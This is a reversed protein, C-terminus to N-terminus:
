KRKVFIKALDWTSKEDIDISEQIPTQFIMPKNGVRANNKFFSKKSFFYICSNEEYIEKLFQTQILKKPNHNLPKINNNYFRSKYTNVSFLSDIKNKNKYKLFEKYSKNITKNSILPNTAHTMLFNINKINKYYDSVYNIDSEIIKNMSIAHGILSKSRKRIIVKKSIKNKSKIIFNSDTNIIIKSIHKNIILKDLMWRYLPKGCFLKFNKNFIRQSKSKLPYIAILM